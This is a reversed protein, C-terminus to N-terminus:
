REGLVLMKDPTNELSLTLTSNLEEGSAEITLRLNDFTPQTKPLLELAAQKILSGVSCGAEIDVPFFHTDVGERRVFFRLVAFPRSYYAVRQHAAQEDSGHAEGPRKHGSFITGPLNDM